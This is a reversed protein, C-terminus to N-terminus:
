AVMGPMRADLCVIGLTADSAAPGELDRRGRDRSRFAFPQCTHQEYRVIGFDKLQNVTGALEDARNEPRRRIGDRSAAGARHKQEPLSRPRRMSVPLGRTEARQRTAARRRRPLPQLEKGRCAAM